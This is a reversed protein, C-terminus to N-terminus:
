ASWHRAAFQADPVPAAIPRGAPHREIAAGHADLVTV